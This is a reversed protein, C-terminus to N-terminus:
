PVTPCLHPLYTPHLVNEGSNNLIPNQLEELDGSRFIDFIPPFFRSFESNLSIFCIERKDYKGSCETCLRTPFKRSTLVLMHILAIGLELTCPNGEM